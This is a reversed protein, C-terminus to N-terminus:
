HFRRKIPGSRHDDRLPRSGGFLMRSRAYDSRSFRSAHDVCMGARSVRPDKRIMRTRDLQSFYPDHRRTKSCLDSGCAIRRLANQRRRHKGLVRFALGFSLRDVVELTGARATSRPASADAVPRPCADLRPPRPTPPTFRVVVITASVTTPELLAQQPAGDM